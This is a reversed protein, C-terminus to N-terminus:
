MAGYQPTEGFSWDNSNKHIFPDTSLGFLNGGSGGHSSEKLKTVMPESMKM